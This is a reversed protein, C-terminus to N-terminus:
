SCSVVVRSCPTEIFLVRQSGRQWDSLFQILQLRPLTRDLRAESCSPAAFLPQRTVSTADPSSACDPLHIQSKLLCFFLPFVNPSLFFPFAKPLFHWQNEFPPTPPSFPLATSSSSVTRDPRAVARVSSLLLPRNELGNLKALVEGIVKSKGWIWVTLTM